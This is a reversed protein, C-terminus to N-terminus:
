MSGVKTQGSPPRAPCPRFATIPVGPLAPASWRCMLLYLKSLHLSQDDTSGGGNLCSEFEECQADLWRYCAAYLSEQESDLPM